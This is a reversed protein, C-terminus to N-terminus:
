GARCPQIETMSSQGGSKLSVPVFIHIDSGGTKFLSRDTVRIFCMTQQKAEGAVAGPILAQKTRHVLVAFKGKSGNILNLLINLCRSANCVINLHKGVFQTSVACHIISHNGMNRPTGSETLAVPSHRDPHIVARRCTKKLIGIVHDHFFVPRRRDRLM